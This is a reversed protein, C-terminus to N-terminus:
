NRGSSSLWQGRGDRQHGQRYDLAPTSHQGRPHNGFSRGGSQAVYNEVQNQALPQPRRLTSQLQWRKSYRLGRTPADPELDQPLSRLVQGTLLHGPTLAEGENPDISIPTLPRSNLMAETYALYARVEAETLSADAV